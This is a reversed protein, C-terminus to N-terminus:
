EVGAWIECMGALTATMFMICLLSQVLNMIVAGSPLFVVTLVLSEGGPLSWGYAYHRVDRVTLKTMTTAHMQAENLRSHFTFPSLSYRIENPPRYSPPADVGVM